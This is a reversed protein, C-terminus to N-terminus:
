RRRERQTQCHDASAVAYGPLASRQIIEYTGSPALGIRHRLDELNRVYTTADKKTDHAALWTSGLPSNLIVQYRTM